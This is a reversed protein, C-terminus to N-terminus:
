GQVRKGGRNMQAALKLTRVQERLQEVEQRLPGIVEELAQLRGQLRDLRSDQETQQIETQVLERAPRQAAELAEVRRRLDYTTKMDM